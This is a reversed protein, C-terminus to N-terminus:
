VGELTVKIQQPYPKELLDKPIYLSQITEDNGYTVSGKNEKKFTLTTITTKM